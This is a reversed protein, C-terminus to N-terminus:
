MDLYAGARQMVNETNKKLLETKFFQDLRLLDSFILWHESFYAIARHAQKAHPQSTLM